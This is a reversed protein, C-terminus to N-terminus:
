RYDEQGEPELMLEARVTADAAVDLLSEYAIYNFGSVVLRYTGKAVKLKAMGREDTFARYPHLLVHAGAIPTQKEGDFAEVTVDHDPPSVVKVAFIFSGAGHPVGSDPVGSDSGPSSVQWRYDGTRRPAEVEVEAFYLASTGPWADDLLSAAGVQAGEHDFISLPRGTL